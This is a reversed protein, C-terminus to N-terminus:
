RAGTFQLCLTYQNCLTLVNVTFLMV